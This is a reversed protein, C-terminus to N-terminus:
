GAVFYIHLAFCIATLLLGVCCVVVVVVCCLMALTGTINLLM